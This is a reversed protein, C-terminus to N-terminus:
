VTQHRTRVTGLHRGHSKGDPTWSNFDGVISVAKAHPAWVRFVVGAEGNQECLHAGFYRYAEQNNGQKFLYIPLDSSNPTEKRQKM